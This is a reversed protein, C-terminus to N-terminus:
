CCVEFTTLDFWILGLTKSPLLDLLDHHILQLGKWQGWDQFNSHKDLGVIIVRAPWQVWNPPILQAEGAAVQLQLWSHKVFSWCCCCCCCCCRCCGRVCGCGCGCCGCCNVIKLFLARWFCFCSWAFWAVAQAAAEKYMPEKSRRHVTSSSAM